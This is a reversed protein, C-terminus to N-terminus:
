LIWKRVKRITDLFYRIRSLNIGLFIIFCSFLAFGILPLYQWRWALQPLISNLISSFYLFFSIVIIMTISNQLFFRWDFHHAYERIARYSLFWMLIWSIGVSFSAASSGNPFPIYGYKYGLISILNVSLNMILTYLLIEIRKRILWLGGLIQFNIQILVNFILFPAIFYLAVGAPIFKEWFLFGAINEGCLIFFVGIWGIIVSIYTSFIGFIDKIKEKEGRGHIESIVPFLFSILPTLFIFPIGILSLYIAYIGTDHVGLFYTLLQMDIQHLVTGVNASFLTWLSYRIMSKRLETDYEAPLSLHTRYYNFYFYIGGFLLWLYLGIIWTWTYTYINGHDSFLIISAGSVTALMRFFEIMKQSKVNQIANLFTLIVQLLHMGIFYLSLIQIVWRAAETHFYNEALWGAGFFLWISVLTSTVIQTSGTLILLYKGRAYDNKIIYKPLFYNLSETLWFDTYTGLLGLLAISGYIIGIESPSLDGTLIIRMIYWLPATLFIFLYMWAGKTIFKKSLSEEKILM